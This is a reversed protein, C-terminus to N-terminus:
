GSILEKIKNKLETLDSSKTIYANAAWSIFDTKYHPYATYIIVPLNKRKGLIKGMTELGDMKPLRLDLIVLHIDQTELIELGAPGDEVTFINYGEKELEEKYLIRQNEEDEIMLINKPM